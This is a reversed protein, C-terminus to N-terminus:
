IPPAITVIIRMDTTARVGHPERIQSILLSGTPAPIEADDAGLFV